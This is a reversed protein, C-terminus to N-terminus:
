QKALEEMINAAEDYGALNDTLVTSFIVAYYPAQLNDVIM